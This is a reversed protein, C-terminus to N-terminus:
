RAGRERQLRRSSENGSVWERDRREHYRRSIKKRRSLSAASKNHNYSACHTHWRQIRSINWLKVAQYSCSMTMIVYRCLWWGGGAGNLAHDYAVNSIAMISTIGCHYGSIEHLLSYSHQHNEIGNSTIGGMRKRDGWSTIRGCEAEHWNWGGSAGGRSMSAIPESRAVLRKASM